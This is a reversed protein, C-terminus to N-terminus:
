RWPSLYRPTVELTLGPGLSWTSESGPRLSMGHVLGQLSSWGLTDVTGDPRTMQGSMGRELNIYRALGTAALNLTLGTPFGVSTARGDWRLRMSPSLPQDGQVRFTFAGTYYETEGLWHGSWSVCKLQEEVVTKDRLSSPWDPFSPSSVETYFNGGEPSFVRLRGRRVVGPDGYDGPEVSDWARRWARMTAELEGKPARVAYDLTIELPPAKWGSPRAGYRGVAEVESREVKSSFGDVGDETLVVPQVSAPLKETSSLLWVNGDPSEYEISAAM